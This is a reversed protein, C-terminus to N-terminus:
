ASDTPRGVARDGAKRAARYGSLLLARERPDMAILADRTIGFMAAAADLMAPDPAPTPPTARRGARGADADAGPRSAAGPATDNSPWRSGDGDAGGGAAPWRLPALDIRIRGPGPRDSEPANRVIWRFLSYAIGLLAIAEGLYKYNM